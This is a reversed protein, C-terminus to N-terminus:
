SRDNGVKQRITHTNHAFGLFTRFFVDRGGLFDDSANQVMILHKASNKVRSRLPFFHEHYM